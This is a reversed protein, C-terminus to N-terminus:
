KPKVNSIEQHWTDMAKFIDPEMNAFIFLDHAKYIIIRYNSFRVDTIGKVLYLQQILKKTEATADATAKDFQTVMLSPSLGVKSKTLMETVNIVAANPNEATQYTGWDQTAQAMIPTSILTVILVIALTIINKM